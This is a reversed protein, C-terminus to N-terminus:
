DSSISYNKPNIIMGDMAAMVQVGSRKQIERAQYLPDANLMKVGFHTIIALNPIAKKLIEVADDSTLLDKNESGSPHVVNMILIDSGEYNRIIKRDFSTDGTYTLTFEKTKIKFGIANEEHHKATIAKIDVENVGVREGKSLQIAKELYSKYREGLFSNNAADGKFLTKNAVLVGKPDLGGNTMASILANVDNAHNLHNHSVLIAITNRSNVGYQKTRVLTGPGPDIHYIEEDLELVIGGSARTQKGVVLADGGTGLFIIKSTM